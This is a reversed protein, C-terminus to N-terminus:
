LNLDLEAKLLQPLSLNINKTSIWQGDVYAFHHAGSIPSSVWIQKTINHLNIVYEGENNKISLIGNMLDSELDEYIIDYIDELLQNAQQYFNQM